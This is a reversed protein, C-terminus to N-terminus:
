ISEWIKKPNIRTRNKSAASKKVMAVFKPNYPSNEKDQIVVGKSNESLLKALEYLM